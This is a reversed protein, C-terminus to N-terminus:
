GVKVPPNALKAESHVFVFNSYKVSGNVICGEGIVVDKGVVNECCVNELYAREKAIVSSTYLKGRRSFVGFIPAISIVLGEVSKRKIDINVAEIGGRAHSDHRNLQANFSETMIKGDINFKGHLEVSKGSRVDGLVRLSGHCQLTNELEVSDGIKCSGAAKLLSGRVEGDVSLSGSVTLTKTKINGAVFVSGAFIMEEAEVDGEISVNGAGEMKEVKLGGPLRCSGGVKIEQSSIFGSGAIYIDGIGNIYVKGSGSVHTTPISMRRLEKEYERMKEEGKM